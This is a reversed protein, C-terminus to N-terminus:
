FLMLESASLCPTPQLDAQPALRRFKEIQFRSISDAILNTCGPIFSAHITFNYKAECWVLKRIFKMIFPIRSRGKNIIECASENDCKVVIRKKCWEQGWLVAAMVIPYLEFLAMSAKCDNPIMNEEFKGCFWKGSFYAGFGIPTADTYFQLNSAETEQNDLFFSVGNWQRLFMSWMKIDLRCEQNLKVHHHLMKVTTSLSILYSVFARGPYIVRCAFNLHGLLSLLEQKTCAEREMFSDLISIIRNVKEMPLRAEMRQTDLIVGLYELVTAPGVSKHTSLPIGLKNFVLTLVAMTRYPISDPADITLYDDLLHLVSEVDYNNQLIWCVAESLTDFIKPSSRSGFVLRTYFYYKNDWKIGYYPWLNEKIPLLKFADKIDVKCLWSGLGKEQIIKIATDLKVYSLSFEEKDVLENLSQHIQNDHPASLDVILRKKGSYKGIAIGIPSVRYTPFPPSAYPGMIYGRDLETQILETTSEPQRKASLLNDCEFSLEPLHALGTDFGFTFGDLLYNVFDRDPHKSLERQLQTVNVPSIKPFEREWEPLKKVYYM